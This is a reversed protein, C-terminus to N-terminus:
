YEWKMWVNRTSNEITRNGLSFFTFKEGWIESSRAEISIRQETSNIIKENKNVQITIKLNTKFIIFAMYIFTDYIKTGLCSWGLIQFILCVFLYHYTHLTVVKWTNWHFKTKNIEISVVTYNWFLHQMIFPMFQISFIRLLSYLNHSVVSTNTLNACNEQKDRWKNNRCGNM